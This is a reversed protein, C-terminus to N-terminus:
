GDSYFYSGNAEVYDRFLPKYIVYLGPIHYEEKGKELAGVCFDNYESAYNSMFFRTPKAKIYANEPNIYPCRFVPFGLLDSVGCGGLHHVTDLATLCHGLFSCVSCCSSGMTHPWFLTAKKM